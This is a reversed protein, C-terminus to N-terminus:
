PNNFHCTLTAKGSASVTEHWKDTFGNITGCLLGTSDFDFRAAGGSSSPTVDAKCVLNGNGSPTIVVRSSDTFVFSSNGDLMGCGFDSIHVAGDALAAPATHTSALPLILLAVVALPVLFRPTRSM